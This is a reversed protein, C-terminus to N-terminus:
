SLADLEVTLDGTRSLAFFGVLREIRLRLSDEGGDLIAHNYEVLASAWDGRDASKRAATVRAKHAALRESEASKRAAEALQVAAFWQEAERQAREEAVAARQLAVMTIGLLVVAVFGAAVVKGRNVEAWRWAQLRWPLPRA